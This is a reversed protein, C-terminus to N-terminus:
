ILCMAADFIRGYSLQISRRAVFWFAPPEFGEPRALRGVDLLPKANRTAGSRLPSLARSPPLGEPRALLDILQLAGAELDQDTHAAYLCIEQDGSSCYHSDSM